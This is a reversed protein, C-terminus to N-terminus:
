LSQPSFNFAQGQEMLRHLFLILDLRCIHPSYKLILFLTEWPAIFYYFPVSDSTSTYIPHFLLLLLPVCAHSAIFSSLLGFSPCRYLYLLPCWLPLSPVRLFPLCFVNPCTLTLSLVLFEFILCYFTNMFLFLFSLFSFSSSQHTSCVRINLEQSPQELLVKTLGPLDSVISRSPILVQHPISSMSAAPQMISCCCIYCIM